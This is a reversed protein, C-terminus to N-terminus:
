VDHTLAEIHSAHLIRDAAGPLLTDSDSWPM